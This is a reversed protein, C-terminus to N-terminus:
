MAAAPRLPGLARPSQRGEFDPAPVAGGAGSAVWGDETSVIARFPGVESRVCLAAVGIALM